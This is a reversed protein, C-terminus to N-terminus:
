EIPELYFKEEGNEALKQPKEVEKEKEDSTLGEDSEIPTVEPESAMPGVREEFEEDFSDESLIGDEESEDTWDGSVSETWKEGVAEDDMRELEDSRLVEYRDISMLVIPERGDSDTVILVDGTQRALHMLRKLSAEHM